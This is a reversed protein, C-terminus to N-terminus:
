GDELDMGTMEALRCAAQFSTLGEHTKVAEVRGTEKHTAQLILADGQESVDVVWGTANIEGIIVKTLSDLNHLTM